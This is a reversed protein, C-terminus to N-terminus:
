PMGTVFAAAHGQAFYWLALMLSKVSIIMDLDGSVEVALIM